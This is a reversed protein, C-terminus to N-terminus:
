YISEMGKILKEFEKELKLTSKGSERKDDYDWVELKINPENSYAGQVVGGSVFVIVKAPELIVKGM